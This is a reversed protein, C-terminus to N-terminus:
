AIAKTLNFKMLMQRFDFYQNLIKPEIIVKYPEREFILKGEKIINYKLEPKDTNDMIVVDIKDTKLIKSLEALLELKLEFNKKKNREDTYIAFDYDSMPGEEGRARSGFFYALKVAEHGNFVAKIQNELIEDM